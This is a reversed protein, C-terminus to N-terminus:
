SAMAQPGALSDRVGAGGLSSKRVIREQAAILGFLVWVHRYHLMEHTTGDMATFILMGTLSLTTLFRTPDRSLALSKWLLLAATGLLMLLALFGLIGREVLFSLYDSHLEKRATGKFPGGLIVIYHSFGAPGIGIGLPNDLFTELGTQWILERGEASDDMRNAYNKMALMQPLAMMGVLAVCGAAVAM